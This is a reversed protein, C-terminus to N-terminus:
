SAAVPNVICVRNRGADKAAYLAEDALKLMATTTDVDSGTGAVGISVTISGQFQATEIPNAAVAARLRDGLEQAVTLDADPCIALFEEGGYRCIDDSARLCDQMVRATEQLVLDGADHGWTDNVKKFHDIDAIMCLMPKDQRHSREWEKALRDMAYRRNPLGTLTDYLALRQLQRNALSLEAAARRIAERDREVREQLAIVREAARLRAMLVAHNVPKPIYDDAGAEFATVLDETNDNATMMIIYVRSAQESRRLTRCLELGDMEPMMWDSIILHPNTQLAIQLAEAGDCATQVHHPSKALRNSVIKRDMASDDVVLIRLGEPKTDLAGTEPAAPEAHDDDTDYGITGTSPRSAEARSVLETLSPVDETLIDLMEGMSTWDQLAQDSAEFLSARSLGLQNAHDLLESVLEARKDADAVCIRALSHATRLVMSLDPAPPAASQDQSVPDQNTVARRYEEPLGWNEFLGATVMDHDMSFAGRELGKLEKRCRGNWTELVHAYEQPYVSALCLAGCQSLLGCTFAEEPETGATFGALHQAAVGTALSRSWFENYDFAACPGSRANSLLSFGLALQRVANMGLRVVAEGVTKVERGVRVQASNAYKLIQGVLAPDSVLVKQLDTASTEEDRTLKLIQLAVGSPSPLRDSTLITDLPTQPSTVM